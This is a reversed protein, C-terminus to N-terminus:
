GARAALRRKQEIAAHAYGGNNVDIFHLHNERRSLVMCTMIAERDAHTGYALEGSRYKEELWNELDARRGPDTALVLRLTGDFKRHDCNRVVDLKYESLDFLSFVRMRREILYRGVATQVRMMGLLVPHLLRPERFAKIRHECSLTEAHTSISLGEGSVPCQEPHSAGIKNLVSELIANANEGATPTVLLSLMVGGPSRIGNWRCELGSLDAHDRVAPPAYRAPDNKVRREAEALADGEFAAMAPIKGLAVRAIGLRFGDSRLESVPVVGARLSLGFVERAARCASSLAPLAKAVMDDPLVIVAGDGGFIFPLDISDFANFVGALV